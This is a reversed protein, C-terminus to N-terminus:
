AGFYHSVMITSLKVSCKWTCCFLSQSHNIISHTEVCINTKRFLNNYARSALYTKYNIYIYIVTFLLQRMGRSNKNRFFINHMQLSNLSAYSNAPIFFFCNHWMTNENLTYIWSRIEPKITYYIKLTWSIHQLSVATCTYYETILLYIM